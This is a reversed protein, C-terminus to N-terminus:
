GAAPLERRRAAVVEALRRAFPAALQRGAAGFARKGMGPERRTLRKPHELLYMLGQVMRRLRAMPRRNLRRRRVVLTIVAAALAVILATTIGFAAPHRRVQLGLDTLEARRRALEDLLDELRTRLDLVDQELREPARSVDVTGEGM